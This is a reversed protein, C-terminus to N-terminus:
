QPPPYRIVVLRVTFNRMSALTRNRSTRLRRFPVASSIPPVADSALVEQPVNLLAVAVRGPGPSNDNLEIALAM